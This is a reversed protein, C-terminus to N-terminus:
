DAKEVIRNLHEEIDAESLIEFRPQEACCIGIELDQPKFDIGLVSSLCNIGLEIVEEKNLEGSKKLKKELHNLAEQHKSGATTAKYGVFYRSNTDFHFHSRWRFMGQQIVNICCHDENMM